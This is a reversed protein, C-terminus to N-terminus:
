SIPTFNVNSSKLRQHNIGRLLCERKLMGAMTTAFDQWGIHLTKGVLICSEAVVIAFVDGNM